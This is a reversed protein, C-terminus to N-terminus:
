FRIQISLYLGLVDQRHPIDKKEMHLSIKKHKKSEGDHVLLGNEVVGIEEGQKVYFDPVFRACFFMAVFFPSVINM